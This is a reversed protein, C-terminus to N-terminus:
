EDEKDKSSDKDSENQEGQPKGFYKEYIDKPIYDEPESYVIGKPKKTAM